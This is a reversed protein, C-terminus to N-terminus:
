NSKVVVTSRVSILIALTSFWNHLLTLSKELVYVVPLEFLIKSLSPMLIGLTLFTAVISLYQHLPLGVMQRTLGIEVKDVTSFIGNFAHVLSVDM